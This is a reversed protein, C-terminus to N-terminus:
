ANTKKDRKPGTWYWGRKEGTSQQVVQTSGGDSTAKRTGTREQRRTSGGCNCPM